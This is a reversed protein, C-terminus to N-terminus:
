HMILLKRVDSTNGQILRIVYIGQRLSGPSPSHLPLEIRHLGQCSPLDQWVGALMGSSNYLRVSVPVPHPLEYSLNIAVTAPNYFARFEIVEAERFPVATIFDMFSGDRLRCAGSATAFWVSGDPDFDIGYVTDNLLGDASTYSTWLGDTYHSVGGLTGFWLGGESDESISIVDNHILGNDTSLLDWNNKAFYGTHTEVGVDTGFYQKDMGNVMVSRVNDSFPSTGYDGDWRSAGTIGDVGSVFRGIGGEQAVYLTDGYMDLRRVPTSFLYSYNDIYLLSDMSGDHFWTIGGASGFFKGHRSDLAIDAVDNNVLGAEATYSTSGTVGDADFALVSVGRTTAVWLERGNETQEFALANVQNGVLHDAETYYRLSLDDYRCLGRNTGFWKVGDTDVYVAKVTFVGEGTSEQQRSDQNRATVSLGMLLWFMLLQRVAKM